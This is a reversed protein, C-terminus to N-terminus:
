VSLGGYFWVNLSAASTAGVAGPSPMRYILMYLSQGSVTITAPATKQLTSCELDYIQEANLSEGGVTLGSLNASLESTSAIGIWQPTSGVGSAGFPFRTVGEIDNAVTCEPHRQGEAAQYGLCVANGTVTVSTPQTGYGALTPLQFTVNITLSQGAYAAFVRYSSTYSANGALVTDQDFQAVTASGTTAQTSMLASIAAAVALSFGTDFHGVHTGQDNFIDIAKIMASAYSTGTGASGTTTTNTLLEFGTMTWGSPMAPTIFSLTQNAPSNGV